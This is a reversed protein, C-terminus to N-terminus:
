DGSSGRREGRRAFGVGNIVVAREGRGTRLGVSSEEGDTLLSRGGVGRAWNFGMTSAIRTEFM